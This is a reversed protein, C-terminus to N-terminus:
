PAMGLLAAANSFVIQDDVWQPRHGEELFALAVEEAMTVDGTAIKQVVHLFALKVDDNAKEWARPARNTRAKAVARTAEYTQKAIGAHTKLQEDLYDDRSSM